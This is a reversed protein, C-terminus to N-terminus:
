QGLNPDPKPWDIEFNIYETPDFPLKKFDVKPIASTM